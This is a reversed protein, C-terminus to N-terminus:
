YGMRSHIKEEAGQVGAFNQAMRAVDGRSGAYRQSEEISFTRGSVKISQNITKSKDKRATIVVTNITTVKERLAINLVVEKSSTVELQYLNKPEYGLMTYQINYRGIPLEELRFDGNEDSIAGFKSEGFQAEVIVGVLPVRTNQDFINGRVSQTLNQANLFTGIIVLLTLFLPKM